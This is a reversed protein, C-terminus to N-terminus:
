RQPRNVRVVCGALTGAAEIAAHIRGAQGETDADQTCAVIGAHNPTTRHLKFFDRRNLTLVARGTQTAFALVDEDPVGRGANGAEASTLVDYGRRRLGEVVQRPFNENAYLATSM